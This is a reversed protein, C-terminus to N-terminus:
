RHTYKKEDNKIKDNIINEKNNYYVEEMEASFAYEEKLFEKEKDNLKSYLEGFQQYLKEYEIDDVQLNRLEHLVIVCELFNDIEENM